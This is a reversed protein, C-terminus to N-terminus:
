PQGVVNAPTFRYGYGHITTIHGIEPPLKKRLKCVYVDVIKAEPSGPSVAEVAALCQSKSRTPNDVLAILLARESQTLHVGWTDVQHEGGAAEAEFLLDLCHALYDRAERPSMDESRQIITQHVHARAKVGKRRLRSRVANVDLDTEASMQQLSRGEAAMKLLFDTVSM